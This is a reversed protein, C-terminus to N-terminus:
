RIQVLTPDGDLGLQRRGASTINAPTWAPAPQATVRTQSLGELGALRNYILAALHAESAEGPHVPTFVVAARYRPPVGPIDSGPADPDPEVTVNRILGLDVINCPLDPAYCDHLAARVNDATM